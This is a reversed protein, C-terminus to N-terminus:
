PRVEKEITRLSELLRLYAPLSIGKDINTYRVSIMQNDLRFLTVYYPHVRGNGQEYFQIAPVKNAGISRYTLM